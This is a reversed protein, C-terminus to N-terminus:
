EAERGPDMPSAVVAGSWRRFELSEEAPKYKFERIMDETPWIDKVEGDIYLVVLIEEDGLIRDVYQRVADREPLGSLGALIDAHTHWAYQAFGVSIDGRDDRTVLLRLFGDPSVHDEIIEM